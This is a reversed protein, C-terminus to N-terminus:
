EKKNLYKYLKAAYKILQEFDYKIEKQCDHLFNILSIELPRIGTLLYTSDMGLKECFRVLDNLSLRRTGREIQGYFSHSIGLLEATVAQTIHLESRYERLRGGIEMKFISTSTTTFKM